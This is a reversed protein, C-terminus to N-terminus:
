RVEFAVNVVATVKKEISQTDNIGSDSVETSNPNTIQFVGMQASRMLGITNGTSGAMSRARQRANETAEGLMKVKLDDLRTYFYEPADSTFTLGQTLLENANKAIADVKGVDNSEFGVTQMLEFGEVRNTTDGQSDRAYLTSTIVSSEHIAKANVGQRTLYARVKAVDQKLQTYAQSLTSNRTTVHGNWTAYNSTIKQSAAGTVSIKQEDYKKFTVLSNGLIAASIILGLLVCVGFLALQNEKVNMTM